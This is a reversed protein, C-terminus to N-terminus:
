EGEVRVARVIYRRPAHGVFYFPYCTVLTVTPRSTPDLVAVDEPPVISISEVQFSEAGDVTVLDLRDGVAVDKLGRFFGDRHGAIGVNGASGPRATGEVHGVGRNLTLEDTGELVPVVLDITPIKLVALPVGFPATLSERYARIREESWLSVDVGEPVAPERVADAARGLDEVPTKAAAVERDFARLSARSLVMQHVKSAAYVGLLVLGAGILVREARRM